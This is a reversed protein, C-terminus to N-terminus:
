YRITQVTRASPTRKGSFTRAPHLRTAEEVIALAEDTHQLYCENSSRLDVLIGHEFLGINESM